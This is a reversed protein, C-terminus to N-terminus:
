TSAAFPISGSRAATTPCNTSGGPLVPKRIIRDIILALHGLHFTGSIIVVGDVNRSQLRAAAQKADDVEIVLEEEFVWVTEPIKKLNERARAYIRGAEEWDFTTRALCVVGLVIRQM